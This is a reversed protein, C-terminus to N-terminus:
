VIMGVERLGVILAYCNWRISGLAQVAFHPGKKRTQKVRTRRLLGVTWPWTKLSCWEGVLSIWM